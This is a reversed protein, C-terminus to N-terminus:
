SSRIRQTSATPADPLSGWPASSRTRSRRPRSPRRSPDGNREPDSGAAAHRRGRRGSCLTEGEIVRPQAPQSRARHGDEVGPRHAPGALGCLAPDQWGGLAAQHHPRCMWSRTMEATVTDLIPQLHREAGIAGVMAYLGSLKNNLDGARRPRALDEVGRRLRRMVRSVLAAALYLTATFFLLWAAAYVPRDM